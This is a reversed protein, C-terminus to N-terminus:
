AWRKRRKPEGEKLFMKVIQANGIKKPETKIGIYEYPQFLKDKAADPFLQNLEELRLNFERKNKCHEIKYENLKNRIIIAYQKVTKYRTLKDNYEWNNSIYSINKKESMIKETKNRAKQLKTYDSISAHTKINQKMEKIKNKQYKLSEIEKEIHCKAHYYKFYSKYVRKGQFAIPFQGIDSEVLEGKAIPKGCIHCYSTDTKAASFHQCVYKKVTVKFESNLKQKHEEMIDRLSNEQLASMKHKFEDDTSPTKTIELEM